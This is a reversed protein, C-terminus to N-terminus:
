GPFDVKLWPPFFLRTKLWQNTLSFVSSVWRTLLKYDRIQTMRTPGPCESSWGGRCGSWFVILWTWGLTLRCLDCPMWGGNTICTGEQNLEGDCLQRSDSIAHIYYLIDHFLNRDSSILFDEPQITDTLLFGRYWTERKERHLGTPSRSMM